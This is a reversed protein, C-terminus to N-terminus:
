KSSEDGTGTIASGNGESLWQNFTEAAIELLRTSSVTVKTIDRKGAVTSFVFGVTFALNHEGHSMYSKTFDPGIVKEEATQLRLLVERCLNHIAFYDFNLYPIDTTVAAALRHILPKKTNEKKSTSTQVVETEVHDRIKSGKEIWDEVVDVSVPPRDDSRAIRNGFLASTLGLFKMLPKNDKSVKLKNDRKNPAWNTISSGITLCFNNFYGEFASPPEGIFFTSNGQMKRLTELDQWASNLCNEQRLAHYLQTTCLVTGPVAAYAVGQQHFLTRMQHVWLGCHLFHRRLFTYEKYPKGLSTRILAIPDIGKNWLDMNDLLKIRQPCSAPLSHVSQQIDAIVRQM